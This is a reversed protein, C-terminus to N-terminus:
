VCRKSKPEDKSGDELSRKKGTEMSPASLLAVLESFVWSVDEIAASLDLGHQDNPQVASIWWSLAAVVLSLGNSGGRIIPEWDGDAPLTKVLSERKRWPPQMNVWWAMWAVGFELPNDIVPLAKGTMLKKRRIWFQVEEPRADTYL